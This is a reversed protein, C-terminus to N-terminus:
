DNKNMYQFCLKNVIHNFELNNTEDGTYKNFIYNPVISSLAYMFDTLNVEKMDIYNENDENQIIDSIGLLLKAAINESTDTKM